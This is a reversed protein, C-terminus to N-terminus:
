GKSYIAIVDDLSRVVATIWGDARLAELWAVQEPRPQNTGTKVELAYPKGNVAFLLDPVGPAQTSPKDMRSHVIGQVGKMRLWSIIQEHLAKEALRVGAELRKQVAEPSYDGVHRKADQSMQWVTLESHSWRPM